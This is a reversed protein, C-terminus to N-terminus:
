SYRVRRSVDDHMQAVLADVTDFREMGRLRHVFEV